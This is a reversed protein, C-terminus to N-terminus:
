VHESCCVILPRFCIVNGYLGATHPSQCISHCQFVKGHVLYYGYTSRVNYFNGNEGLGTNMQFVWKPNLCILLFLIKNIPHKFSCLSALTFNVGSNFWYFLTYVDSELIHTIRMLTWECWLAGCHVCNEINLHMAAQQTLYQQMKKCLVAGCMTSNPTNCCIHRRSVHKINWEFNIASHYYHTRLSHFTGASANHDNAPTNTSM